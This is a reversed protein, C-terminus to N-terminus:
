RSFVTRSFRKRALRSLSLTTKTSRPAVDSRLARLWLPLLCVLYHFLDKTLSGNTKRELVRKKRFEGIKEGEKNLFPIKPLLPFIWPIHQLVSEISSKARLTFSFSNVLSLYSFLKSCEKRWFRGSVRRTEMMRWSNLVAVLAKASTLLFLLNWSEHKNKCWIVWSTPELLCLMFQWNEIYWLCICSLKRSTAWGTRCACLSFVMRRLEKRSNM